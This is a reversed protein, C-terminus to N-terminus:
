KIWTRLCFNLVYQLINLRPSGNLWMRHFQNWELGIYFAQEGLFWEIKESEINEFM